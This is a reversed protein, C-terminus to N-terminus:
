EAASLSSFNTTAEVIIGEEIKIDTLWVDQCDKLLRHPLPNKAFPNHILMLEGGFPVRGLKAYSFLIASIHPYMPALFIASNIELEPVAKTVKIATDRRAYSTGTTKTEGTQRNHSLHIQYDGLGFCVKLIVPMCGPAEQDINGSNVAIIVQEDREIIGKALYPVLGRRKRVKDISCYKDRIASLYRLRVPNEFISLTGGRETLPLAEGTESCYKIEEYFVPSVSNPNGQQGAGPTIAEIWIKKGNQILCIDPGIDKSQITKKQELLKVGLYMEWFRQNFKEESQQCESRFHTDAYRDWTKWLQELDARYKQSIESKGDRLNKYGVWENVKEPLFFLNSNPM